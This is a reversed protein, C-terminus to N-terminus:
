MTLVTLQKICINKIKNINTKNETNKKKNKM